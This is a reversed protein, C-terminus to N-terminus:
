SEFNLMYVCTGSFPIKKIAPPSFSSENGKRKKLVKRRPKECELPSSPQAEPIEQKNEREWMSRLKRYFVCCSFGERRGYKAHFQLSELTRFVRCCAVCKYSNRQICMWEPPTLGAETQTEAATKNFNSQKTVSPSDVEPSFTVSNDERTPVDLTEATAVPPHLPSSGLGGDNCFVGITGNVNLVPTFFLYNGDESTKSTPTQFSVTKAAAPPANSPSAATDDDSSKVSCANDHPETQRAGTITATKPMTRPSGSGSPLSEKDTWATESCMSSCTSYNTKSENSQSDEKAMGQQNPSPSDLHSAPDKEAAGFFRAPLLRLRLIKEGLRDTIDSRLSPHLALRESTIPQNNRPPSPHETASSSSPHSVPVLEEKDLPNTRVRCCCLSSTGHLETKLNTVHDKDKSSPPLKSLEISFDGEGSGTMDAHHSFGQPKSMYGPDCTAAPVTSSTEPNFRLLSNAANSDGRPHSTPIFSPCVM